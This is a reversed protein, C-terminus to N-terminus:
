LEGGNHMGRMKQFLKESQKDGKLSDLQIVSVLHRWERNTFVEDTNGSIKPPMNSMGAGGKGEQRIIM